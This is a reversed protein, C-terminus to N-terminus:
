AFADPNYQIHHLFDGLEKVSAASPLAQPNPEAPVCFFGTHLSGQVDEAVICFGALELYARMTSTTLYYPHDIKIAETLENGKQACARYLDVIDVFFLGGNSIKSRISKLTFSIDTLHDVSRCLTILGFSEDSDELKDVLGHMVRLGSAAAEQLEDESPDLVLSDIGFERALASSVAGTSGGIDLAAVGHIQQAFPRLRDMLAEAYTEAEPRITQATYPKNYYATLLPRYVGQYFEAYANATMMPNLFVLGCASCMCVGVDFGYRDRNCLTNFDRAGCLNCNEVTVKSAREYDYGLAAVRVYREIREAPAATMHM